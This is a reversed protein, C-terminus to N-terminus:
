LSRGRGGDGRGGGGGGGEGGGGGGGGGEEGERKQIDQTCVHSITREKAERQKHTKETPIMWIVSRCPSIMSSIGKDVEAGIRAKSHSRSPSYRATKCSPFEVIGRQFKDVLRMIEISVVIFSGVKMQQDFDPGKKAM